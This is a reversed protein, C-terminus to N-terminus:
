RVEFKEVETSLTWLCRMKRPRTVTNCRVSIKSDTEFQMCRLFARDANRRCAAQNRTTQLCYLGIRGCQRYHCTVHGMPMASPMGCLRCGFPDLILRFGWCNGTSIEPFQLWARLYGAIDSDPRSNGDHAIQITALCDEM